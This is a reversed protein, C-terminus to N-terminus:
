GRLRETRATSGTHASTRQHQQGVARAPGPRGRNQRAGSLADARNQRPHLYAGAVDLKLGRVRGRGQLPQHIRHHQGEEQGAAIVDDMVHRGCHFSVPRPRDGPVQPDLLVQHLGDCLTEVLCGRGQAPECSEVM